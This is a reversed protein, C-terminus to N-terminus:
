YGPCQGRIWQGSGCGSSLGPGRKRPDDGWGARGQLEGRCLQMLDNGIIRLIQLILFFMGIPFILYLLWLPYMLLDLSMIDKTYADTCMKFGYYGLTAAFVLAILNTIVRLMAGTRDSLQAVLFDATIMKGERTSLPVALFAFWVLVFLSVNFVWTNPKDFFRRLIVEYTTAVAVFFMALGAATGSFLSLKDVLAGLGKVSKQTPPEM